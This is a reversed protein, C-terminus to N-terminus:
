QETIITNIDTMEEDRVSADIKSRLAKAADDTSAFHGQELEKVFEAMRARGDNCIRVVLRRDDADDEAV